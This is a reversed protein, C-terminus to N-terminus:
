IYIAKLSNRSYDLILLNKTKFGNLLKKAAVVIGLPSCFTRLERELIAVPPHQNLLSAQFDHLKMSGLPM